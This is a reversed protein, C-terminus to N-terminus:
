VELCFTNQGKIRWNEQLFIFSLLLFCPTKALKFYLYSYLSIRLTAEMCIHIAVWVSEDTGSRTIVEWDSEYLPRQWNLTLINNIKWRHM